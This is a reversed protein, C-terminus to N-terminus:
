DLDTAVEGEDHYSLCGTTNSGTCLIITGTMGSCTIIILKPSERFM